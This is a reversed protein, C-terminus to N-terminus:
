DLTEEADKSPEPFNIILVGAVVLGLGVLFTWYITELLIIVSFLTGFIPVFNIFISSKTAGLHKIGLFYFLFGLFTVFFGMYLVNMWFYPDILAPQAWFQEAVAGAGFLLTGFLVGGTTADISSQTRMSTKGLMSYIGWIIMACVILGNGLLYDPRFEILAQVGIVFVIGLFSIIFGSYRWRKALKEKHVLHAWISISAPNIGAIITGQAATTFRMGVLFFVGYGFVGTLGLLFFLGIDRKTFNWAAGRKSALFVPVFLLSAILFRFFGITMPPAIAVVLKGSVWSGGWFVMALLLLLYHKLPSSTM